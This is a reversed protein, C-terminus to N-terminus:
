CGFKKKYVPKLPCTKKPALTGKPAIASQFV